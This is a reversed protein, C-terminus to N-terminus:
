KTVKKWTYEKGYKKKYWEEFERRHTEDTFYERVRQALLLSAAKAQAQVEPVFVSM